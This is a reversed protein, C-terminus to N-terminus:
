GVGSTGSWNTQLKYSPIGTCGAIVSATTPTAVCVEEASYPRSAGLLFIKSVRVEGTYSEGYDLVFFNDSVDNAAAEKTGLLSFGM